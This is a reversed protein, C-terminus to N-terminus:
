LFLEPWEKKLKVLQDGAIDGLLFALRAAERAHAKSEYSIGLMREVRALGRLVRIKQGNQELISVSKGVFVLYEAAIDREGVFACDEALGIGILLRTQVSQDASNELAEKGCRIAHRHSRLCRSLTALIDLQGPSFQDLRFGIRAFVYTSLLVVGSLLKLKKSPASGFASYLTSIFRFLGNVVAGDKEWYMGRWHKDAEITSHTSM